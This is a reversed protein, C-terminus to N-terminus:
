DLQIIRGKEVSLVFPRKNANGDARISTIGAVGPFAETALVGDRVAQRSSFGRALQVLVLSAADYAQAAFVNSAHRYTEEYRDVFTSSMQRYTYIGTPTTRERNLKVVRRKATAGPLAKVLAQRDQEETM